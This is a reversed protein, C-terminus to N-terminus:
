SRRRIASALGHEIPQRLPEVARATEIQKGTRTRESEFRQRAAGRCGCEDIIVGGDNACKLFIRARDTSRVARDLACRREVEEAAVISRPVDDKQVRWEVRAQELLGEFYETVACVQVVFRDHVHLRTNM